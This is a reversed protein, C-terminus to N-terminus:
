EIVRDARGVVTAPIKLGMERASRLNIALEFRDAQEVPLDQPRAGRLIRDVYTAIGRWQDAIDTSYAMLGGGEVFFTSFYIAPLRSHAVAAIVRDRAGTSWNSEAAFWADVQTMTRMAAIFEDATRGQVTLLSRGLKSAISETRENRRAVLPEPLYGVRQVSPFTEILLAFRRDILTQGQTSLGTVNGGPRALSDVLGDGVPDPSNAFVIPITKSVAKMARAGTGSTSVVVDVGREMFERAFGAFRAANAGAFRFLVTVDRELSWGRAEFEVRFANWYRRLEPTEIPNIGLWGIVYPRGATRPQGFAGPAALAMCAVLATRRYAKM